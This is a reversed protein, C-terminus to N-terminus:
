SRIRSRIGGSARWARLTAQVQDKMHGFRTPLAKSYTPYRRQM